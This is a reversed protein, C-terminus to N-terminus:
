APPSAAGLARWEALAPNDIDSVRPQRSPAPTAASPVALSPAHACDSPPALTAAATAPEHARKCMADHRLHHAERAGFYFAVVAGLLWWMPEPIAALAQMRVVFGPPDAMAYGFLALTGMALLPRPLRNLANVIRDFRGPPANPHINRVGATQAPPDAFGAIQAPPLAFGAIQAPVPRLAGSVASMGQGLAQARGPRGAVKMALASLTRIM